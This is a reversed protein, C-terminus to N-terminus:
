HKEGSAVLAACWGTFTDGAATTDVPSDVRRPAIRIDVRGGNAAVSERAGRTGVCWGGKEIRGSLRAVAEEFSHASSLQMAEEENVLLYRVHPLVDPAVNAVPAATFVVTGVRIPTRM